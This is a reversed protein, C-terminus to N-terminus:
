NSVVADGVEGRGLVGEADPLLIQVHAGLQSVVYAEATEFVQEFMLASSLARAFDYLSRTRSERQAALAAQYRLGGTLYGAILGVLTMVILTVVYQPDSILLSYRPPVFLFDFALVGVLTTVISAARSLRISVLMVTLTFLMAINALDLYTALPLAVLATLISAFAGGLYHRRAQASWRPLPLSPSVPASRLAPAVESQPMGIRILDLQPNHSAIRQLHSPVGPWRWRRPRCGLVVKSLNHRRAYDSVATAVQDAVVVATIAGLSQALQLAQLMSARQVASARRLPPTDIVIAHWAGNMQAAMRAASRVLHEAGAHPGICALLAAGTKWLPADVRGHRQAALEDEVRDAARRLALERLATLASRSFYDPGADPPRPPTYGSPSHLRALVDDVPLDVLMVEDATDFVTDPVTDTIRVGIIGTVTDNLSDWDQLSATTFVDIGADRLEDIDQWRKPHRATAPNSCAIRDLLLLAPRRALARDLDFEIDNDSGLCPLDNCLAATLNCGHAHVAGIVVDVGDCQRARGAHLMAATKGIGACAGFYIRLRGRRVPSPHISASPVSM